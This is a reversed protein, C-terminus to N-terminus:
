APKYAQQVMQQQTHVPQAQAPQQPAPAAQRPIAQAPTTQMPAAQVQAASKAGTNKVPADIRSQGEYARLGNAADLCEAYMDLIASVNREGWVGQGKLKNLLDFAVEATSKGSGATAFSQAENSESM